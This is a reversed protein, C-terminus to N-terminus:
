VKQPDMLLSTLQIMSILDQLNVGNVLIFLLLPKFAPNVVKTPGYITRSIPAIFLIITM